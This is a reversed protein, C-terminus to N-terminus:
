DLIVAGGASAKVNDPKLAIREGDPLQVIVRGENVMEQESEVPPMIRGEQGNLEKAGQLGDILVTTGYEFPDAYKEPDAAVGGGPGFIKVHDRAVDTSYARKLRGEVYLRRYDAFPMGAEPNKLDPNVALLLDKLQDSNYVADEGETARQLTNFEDINLVKDGDVDFKNFIESIMAEQFRTPPVDPEEEGLIGGLTDKLKGKWGFPDFAEARAATLAKRGPGRLGVTASTFAEQLVLARGAVAVGAAVVGVCLATSRRRRCEIPAM